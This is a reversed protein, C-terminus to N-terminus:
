KSMGGVLGRTPGLNTGLVRHTERAALVSDRLDPALTKVGVPGRTTLYRGQKIKCDERGGGFPSLGELPCPSRIPPVLGMLHHM